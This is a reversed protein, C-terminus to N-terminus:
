RRDIHISCDLRAGFAIQNASRNRNGRNPLYRLIPIEFPKAVGDPLEDEWVFRTQPSRFRAGM